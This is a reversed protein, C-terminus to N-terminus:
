IRIQGSFRIKTNAVFATVPFTIMSANASPSHYFDIVTGSWFAYMTITTTTNLSEFYCPLWCGTAVCSFPLGTIRANGSGTTNVSGIILDGDVLVRNGIRTYEIKSGATLNYSGATGGGVFSASPITYFSEVYADLTNVDASATGSIKINPVTTTGSVTLSTLTGVSTLSSSVIGSALSTGTLTSGAATVTIDASGNFSTGNITRATQLTTATAANGSCAAATTASSANGTLAGVFGASGTVASSFTKAGTITQAQNQDKNVFHTEIYSKNVASDVVSNWTDNVNALSTITKGGMNIGNTINLSGSTDGSIDSARVYESELKYILEQNIRLLQTVQQNLQLSTLRSGATWTVYSTDSVTKRRVVLSQGSSAVPITVVTTGDVLTYTRSGTLGSFGTISTGNTACDYETRTLLFIRHLDYPTIATRVADSLTFLREVEIQDKTPVAADISVGSFSFSTGNWTGSVSTTVNNLNTYSM